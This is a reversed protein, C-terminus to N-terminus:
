AAKKLAPANAGQRYINENYFAVADTLKGLSHANSAGSTWAAIFNSLKGYSNDLAIHPKDLLLSLIHSHLRDTVVFNALSLQRLGRTVRHQALRNYFAARAANRNLMRFGLQFPLVALTQKL